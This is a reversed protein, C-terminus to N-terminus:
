EKILDKERLQVIIENIIVRRNEASRDIYKDLIERIGKEQKKM